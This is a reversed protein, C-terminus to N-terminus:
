VGVPILIPSQGALGVPHPQPPSYITDGQRRALQSGLRRVHQAVSRTTYSVVSDLAVQVVVLGPVYLYLLADQTASGDHPPAVCPVHSSHVSKQHIQFLLTFRSSLIIM